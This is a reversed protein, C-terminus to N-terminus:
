VDPKKWAAILNVTLLEDDEYDSLDGAQRLRSLESSLMAEKEADHRDTFFCVGPMNTQFLRQWEKLRVNNLYANPCIMQEYQPRLHSWFPIGERDNAFIRMDHCGDESTYLHLSIYCAGGPRLVRATEAVVAAPDPLHEFVSFSYVFDFSADPFQMQTADMQMHTTRPLTTVGLQRKLEREFQADIGLGKRVMTKVTRMLGNQRLMTMYARADWGHPIVDLDIGVVENRLGFYVMERPTQGPGIILLRKGDLRFDLANALREEFRRMVGLTGNVQGPIDYSKLRYLSYAEKVFAIPNSRTSTYTKMTAKM